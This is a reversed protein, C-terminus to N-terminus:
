ARHWCPRSIMRLLFTTPLPAQLIAEHVASYKCDNSFNRLFMGDIGGKILGDAVMDRADVWYCTGILGHIMMGRASTLHLKLISEAFEGADTAAIVDCM